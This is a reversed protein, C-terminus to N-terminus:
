DYDKYPEEEFYDRNGRRNAQNSLPAQSLHCLYQRYKSNTM